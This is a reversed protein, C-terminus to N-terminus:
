RPGIGFEDDGVHEGGSVHEGDLSAMRVPRDAIWQEFAAVPM